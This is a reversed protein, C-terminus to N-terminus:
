PMSHGQMAFAQDGSPRSAVAAFREPRPVRRRACCQLRRKMLGRRGLRGAGDVGCGFGEGVI